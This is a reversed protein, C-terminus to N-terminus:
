RGRRVAGRAFLPRALLVLLAALAALSWGSMPVPTAAPQGGGPTAGGCATITNSDLTVAGNRALTRGSMAVGTTLTISTLALINGAFVSGTGLTASSGVQWFVNCSSAGNVLQVRSASATTITSGTKFLFVANPNNQADLTLTGTLGASSDFCYVGATLTRNGLDQGTLNATCATGAATNYAATLAVQAQQAVADNSHITGGVVVGPPFGTVASGPSVGVNGSVVTPGTNTVTSGALVGFAGAEALTPAGQSLVPLASTSFVIFIPAALFRSLSFRRTKM